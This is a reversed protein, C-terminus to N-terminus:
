KTRHLSFKKKCFALPLDKENVVDVNNPGTEFSKNEKSIIVLLIYDENIGQRDGGLWIIGSFTNGDRVSPKSNFHWIKKKEELTNRQFYYIHMKENEIDNVIAAPTISVKIGVEKPLTAKNKPSVLQINCNENAISFSGFIVFLSTLAIISFKNKM